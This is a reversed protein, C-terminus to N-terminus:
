FSPAKGQNDSWRDSFFVLGSLFGLGYSLHLISYVLPLLLLYKWGRQSAVMASAGLNALLYLAIIFGLLWLGPEWFLSLLGCIILGAVFTPPIFQRLRMQRHHKQLVRVKWFGYQFYQNWLSHLTSRSYYYSKIAPNCIIRGGNKLLRYSFEDDQNRVMEEDFGGIKQYISRWCVGMFVTDTVKEQSTYRFNAGGVGFSTSMALAISEALTGTNQAQVPGGVLDAKTRFLTEVANTVYDPALISHASMIGIIEGKASQIGLNWAASQIFKPNPMVRINTSKVLLECVIERSRDNSEGDLIIAELCDQPYDQSIVSQVCKQIYKEENRMAILLSVMPPRHGLLALKSVM